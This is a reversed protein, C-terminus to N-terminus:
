RYYFGASDKSPYKVYGLLNSIGDIPAYRRLSFETEEASPINWALLNKNRDSIVGREAFVLTHRLRNAESRAEYTAGEAIQLHWIRVGFLIGILSLLIGTSIISIKSIAKELRGEFQYTDFDPLNAGDLLIEDPEIERGRKFDIVRPYATYGAIIM